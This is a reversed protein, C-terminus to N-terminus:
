STIELGSETTDAAIRARSISPFDLTLCEKQHWDPPFESLTWWTGASNTTKIRTIAIQPHFEESEVPASKKFVFSM